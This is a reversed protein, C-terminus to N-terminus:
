LEGGSDKLGALESELRGLRIFISRIVDANDNAAAPQAAPKASERKEAAEVTKSLAALKAELKGVQSSLEAFEAPDVAPVAGAPEPKPLRQMVLLSVNAALLILALVFLVSGVKRRWAPASLVVAERGNFWDGCTSCQYNEGREAEDIEFHQRCHPCEIKLINM